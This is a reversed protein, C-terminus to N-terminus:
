SRVKHRDCDGVVLDGCTRCPRAKAYAEGILRAAATQLVDKSCGNEASYRIGHLFLQSSLFMAARPPEGKVHPRLLNQLAEEMELVRADIFAKIEEDTM